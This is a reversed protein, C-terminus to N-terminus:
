RYLLISMCYKVPPKMTAEFMSDLLGDYWGLM